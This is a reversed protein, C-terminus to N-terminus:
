KLKLKKIYDIQKSKIVNLSYGIESIKKIQEDYEISSNQISLLYNSLLLTPFIESFIKIKNELVSYYINEGKKTNINIHILESKRIEQLYDTIINLVNQKKQVVQFNNNLHNINEIGIMYTLDLYGIERNNLVKEFLFSRSYITNEDLQKFKKDIDYFKSEEYFNNLDLFMYKIIEDISLKNIQIQMLVNKFGSKGNRTTNLYEYIKKIKNMQLYITYIENEDNQFLLQIQQINNEFNLFHFYSMVTTIYQVSILNFQNEKYFGQIKNLNLM